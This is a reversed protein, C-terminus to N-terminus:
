RPVECRHLRREPGRLDRVLYDLADHRGRVIEIEVVDDLARDGAVRAAIRRCLEPLTRKRVATMFAVRAQMVEANAVHAPTITRRERAPAATWGVAYEFSHTTGRKAAFMPYTSLPFDDGRLPDSTVPWATAVVALLSVLAGVLRQRDVGRQYM